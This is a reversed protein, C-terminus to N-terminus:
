AAKSKTRAKGVGLKSYARLEWPKPTHASHMPYAGPKLPQWNWTSTRRLLSRDDPKKGKYRAPPPKPLNLNPLGAAARGRQLVRRARGVWKTLGILLRGARQLQSALTLIRM